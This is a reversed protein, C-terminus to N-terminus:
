RDKWVEYFEGSRETFERLVVYESSEENKSSRRLTIKMGGINVICFDNEKKRLSSLLAFYIGGVKPALEPMVDAPHKLVQVIGYRYGDKKQEGGIIRMFCEEDPRFSPCIEQDSWKLAVHGTGYRQCVDCTPKRECYEMDRCNRCQCRNCDRARM